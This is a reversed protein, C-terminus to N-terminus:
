DGRNFLRVIWTMIKSTWAAMNKALLFIYLYRCVSLYKFSFLPPMSNKKKSCCIKKEIILRSLLFVDHYSSSMGIWSHQCGMEHLDNAVRPGLAIELQRCVLWFLCQNEITQANEKNFYSLELILSSISSHTEIVTRDVNWIKILM